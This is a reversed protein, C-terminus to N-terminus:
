AQLGGLRCLAMITDAESFAIRATQAMEWDGTLESLEAMEEDTLPRRRALAGLGNIQLVLSETVMEVGEPGLEIYHEIM